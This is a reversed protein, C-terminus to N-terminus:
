RSASRREDDARPVPAGCRALDDQIRAIWLDNHCGRALELARVLHHRAQDVDNLMLAVAGLTHAVPELPYGKAAGAIKDQYPLLTRYMERGLDNDGVMAAARAGLVWRSLRYTRDAPTLPGAALVTRAQTEDGVAALCCAFASAWLWPMAEYQARVVEVVDALRGQALSLSLMTETVVYDALSSLPDFRRVDEAVTGYITEAASLNGTMSALCGDYLTLILSAWTLELKSALIKGEDLRRAAETVDGRVVRSRLDVLDAQLLYNTVHHREALERLEVGISEYEVPDLECSVVGLNAHLSQAMLEPDGTRRAITLAQRAVVQLVPDGRAANESVYTNLLLCRDVDSLQAESLSDTIEMVFDPELYAYDRNWWLAAYWCTLARVVLHDDGLEQALAVADRRHDIFSCTDGSLVSAPILRLLVGLRQEPQRASRDLCELAQLYLEVAWEYAHRSEAQEAAAMCYSVAKTATAPTGAHAFHHALAAVDGPTVEETAAAIRAHASRLRVAPIQSYLIDRVLVHNFRMTGSGADSLLGAIEGAELADYVTDETATAARSLVEIDVSRGVAAALRLIEQASDPLRALRRLVVDTVGAPVSRMAEQTGVSALLRAFENLYFPNGDTRELLAALLAPTPASGAVATILDEAATDDLGALRVRGPALPAITALLEALEDNHELRHSILLFLRVPDTTEAISTFLRRTEADARHLDDLVIAVPHDTLSSLWGAAAHHMRFRAQTIDGHPAQADDRLLPALAEAYPGAPAQAALARLAEAWAWAPPAGDVEPCRGVAVLWGRDRLEHVVNRLLLSKGAGPEGSVVGIQVGGHRARDAAALLLRTEAERGVFLPQAPSLRDLGLFDGGPSTLLPTAPASSAPASSPVPHGGPEASPDLAPPAADAPLVVTQTLVDQELQRLGLSPEIGLEDVLTQRARRLTALAEAQRATAYQALALLRWAEERLPAERALVEAEMVARPFAGARLAADILLEIAHLRLEGLRSVEPVAWPDDAFEALAPGRWLALAEDLQQLRTAALTENESARVLVEFRWADVEQAALRLAYGPAASVLVASSRRAHDPELVRRLRSVYAQLTAMAKPPPEGHWLEDIIRDVPVVHGRAAVLLALLARQKRSGLDLSVGDGDAAVSGLVRVSTGMILL